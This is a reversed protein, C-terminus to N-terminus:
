WSSLANMDRTEWRHFFLPVAFVRCYGVGRIPMVLQDLSGKGWARPAAACSKDALHRLSLRSISSVPGDTPGTVQLAQLSLDSLATGGQQLFDAGHAGTTPAPSPYKLPLSWNQLGVGGEGSQSCGRGTDVLSVSVSLCGPTMHCASPPPTAQLSGPLGLCEVFSALSFSYSATVSQTPSQTWRKSKKKQPRPEGDM